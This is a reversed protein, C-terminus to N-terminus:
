HEGPSSSTLNSFVLIQVVRMTIGVEDTFIVHTKLIVDLNGCDMGPLIKSVLVYPGSQGVDFISPTSQQIHWNSVRTGAEQM